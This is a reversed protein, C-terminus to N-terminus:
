THKMANKLYFFQSQINVIQSGCDDVQTELERGPRLSEGFSRIRKVRAPFWLSYFQPVRM